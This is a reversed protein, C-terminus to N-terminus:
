GGLIKALIDDERLLLYQEERVAATSELSMGAYKAYIVRDDVQVHMPKLSGDPMRKGPGVKIVTATQPKETASDPLVIGGTSTNDAADIKIVVRDELPICRALINPEKAPATVVAIESVAKRPSPLKNAAKKGWKKEPKKKKKTAASM